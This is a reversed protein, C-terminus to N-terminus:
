QIKLTKGPFLQFTISVKNNILEKHGLNRSLFNYKSGKVRVNPLIKVQFTIIITMSKKFITFNQSKLITCYKFYVDLINCFFIVQVPDQVHNITSLKPTNSKREIVEWQLM